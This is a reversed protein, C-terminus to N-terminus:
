ELLALLVLALVLQPVVDLVRDAVLHDVDQCCDMRKQALLVEDQCCDM